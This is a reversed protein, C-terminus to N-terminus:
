KPHRSKAKVEFDFYKEIGIKKLSANGNTITGLTYNKKM